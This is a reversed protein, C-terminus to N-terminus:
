IHINEMREHMHAEAREGVNIRDDPSTRVQCAASEKSGQM